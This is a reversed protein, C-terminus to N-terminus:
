LHGAADREETLWCDDVNIYVYGLKALGLERVKDAASKITDQTLDCAFTNWSNWGMQPLAGLGNYSALAQHASALIALTLSRM